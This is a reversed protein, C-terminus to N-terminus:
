AKSLCTTSESKSRTQHRGYVHYATTTTSSRSASSQQTRPQDRNSSSSTRSALRRAVTSSPPQVRSQSSLAPSASPRSPHSSRSRSGSSPHAPLSQSSTRQRKPSEDRESTGQRKRGKSHEMTSSTRGSREIGTPDSVRSTHHPSSTSQYASTALSDTGTRSVQGPKSDETRSDTPKIRIAPSIGHHSHHQSKSGPPPMLRSATNAQSRPRDYSESSNLTSGSANDLLSPTEPVREQSSRQTDSVQVRGHLVPTSPRRIDQSEERLQALEDSPISASLSSQDTTNTVQRQLGKLSVRAPKETEEEFSMLMEVIEHTDEVQEAAPDVISVVHSNILRDSGDQDQSAEDFLTDSHERAPVRRSTNTHQPFTEVLTGPTGSINLVSNNGRNVKKRGKGSNINHLDRAFTDLSGSSPSIEQQGSRISTKGSKIMNLDEQLRQVISEYKQRDFEIKKLHETKQLQLKAEAEKRASESREHHRRLTDINEDYERLKDAHGEQVSRLQTASDENGLELEAIRHRLSDRELVLAAQRNKLKSDKTQVQELKAHLDERENKLALTKKHALQIAAQTSRQQEQRESDVEQRLSEIAAPHQSIEVQQQECLVQLNTKHSELNTFTRQLEAFQETRGRLEESKQELREKVGSLESAGSLQDQVTRELINCKAELEMKEKRIFELESRVDRVDKRADECKEKAAEIKQDHQQVLAQLEDREITLRQVNNRYNSEKEIFCQQIDLEIENRLQAM